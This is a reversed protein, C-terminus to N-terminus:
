GLRAAVATLVSETDVLAIGNERVARWFAEPPTIFGRAGSHAARSADYVIYVREFGARRANIATDQSCFANRM